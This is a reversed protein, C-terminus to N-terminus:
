VMQHERRLLDMVTKVPNFTVVPVEVFVTNWDAMGGNWLGPLELAKLESGKQSKRAIFVAERDVFQQLDFPRGRFDRLGCVIDVPNFHTADLWIREQEPSTHDVQASEVIQLSRTGDPENVWFPGGGPEGQNKVMGCVRLPRNLRQFLFNRLKEGSLATPGGPPAASLEQEAFAAVERLFETEKRGAALRELYAFIRDQIHLLYGGLRQKWAITPPKLGDPVVNDINKVFVIDGQLDNLNELLAGHGGPRFLLTGDTRRFPRDSPDVAITDTAPKQVSFAVQLRCGYAAEYDPRIRELLQVFLSLHEPSVTFHIRSIGGADKVYQVAEVLHEEFSTRAGGPYRHFALVGKPLEGYALGPRRLLCSLVERYQESSRLEHLNMGAAALTEELNRRFAFRDLEALFTSLTRCEEDGAAARKKIAEQGPAPDMQEFRLLTKFMRSAAGSAPVFKICRGQEAAKRFLEELAVHDPAPIRKIGDGLICPRHLRLLPPPNRFMELQERVRAQSLGQERIQRLDEESFVSENVM